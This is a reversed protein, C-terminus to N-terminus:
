NEERDARIEEVVKQMLEDARVLEEEDLRKSLKNLIFAGYGMDEHFFKRFKETVTLRFTNGKETKKKELYGKEVLSKVRYTANPQSICLMKAFETITPSGLLYITEVSFYDAASLSSDRQGLIKFIHRYLAIRFSKYIEDFTREIQIESM